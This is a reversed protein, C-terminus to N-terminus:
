FSLGTERTGNALAKVRGHFKYGGRDFVVEKIGKRKAKKGLEKGVLYATELKNKGEKGKLKLSSYSLLTLGKIDDILQAYINKNSRFVNLRPRKETGFVKARVRKHRRKRDLVKKLKAL